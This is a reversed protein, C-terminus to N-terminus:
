EKSLAEMLKNLTEESIAHEMRHADRKANEESVGMRLLGDILVTRRKLVNDAIKKGEATLKLEHESGFVVYGEEILKKVAISVSARAVSLDEAVDVSRCNGKEETIKEISALYDETSTTAKENMVTNEGTMETEPCESVSGRRGLARGM